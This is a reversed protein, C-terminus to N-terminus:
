TKKIWKPWPRTITRQESWIEIESNKNKDGTKLEIWKSKTTESGNRYNLGESENKTRVSASKTNTKSNSKKMQM